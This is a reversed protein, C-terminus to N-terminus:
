PAVDRPVPRQVYDQRIANLLGEASDATLTTGDDKRAAEYMRRRMNIQYASSWNWCVYGFTIPEIIRNV